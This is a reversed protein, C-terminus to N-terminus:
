YRTDEVELRRKVWGYVLKRQDRTIVAMKELYDAVESITVFAHLNLGESKLSDAGGRENDLLVVLDKVLAGESRLRKTALRATKGTSVMDDVILVNDGPHLIGDIRRRRGRTKDVRIVVMPIGLTHALVAVYPVVKTTSGAIRSFKEIGVEFKIIKLLIDMALQFEKPFSTLLDLKVFYPAIERSKTKTVEFKISGIKSLIKCFEAKSQDKKLLWDTEAKKSNFSNLTM